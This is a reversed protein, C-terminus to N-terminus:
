VTPFCLELLYMWIEDIALYAYRVRMYNDLILNFFTIFANQNTKFDVLERRVKDAGVSLSRAPRKTLSKVQSLIQERIL